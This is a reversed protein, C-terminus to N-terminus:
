VAEVIILTGFRVFEGDDPDDRGGQQTRVEGEVYGVLWRTPDTVTGVSESAHDGLLVLVPLAGGEASEILGEVQGRVDDRAVRTSGSATGLWGATAATNDVHRAELQGEDWNLTLSRRSPGLQTRRDTNAVDLDSGVNPARGWEYGPSWQKGLPVGGFLYAAGIQYYDNAAETSAILLSWWRYRITASPSAHAVAVGAPWVLECDATAGPSGAIEAREVYVTVTPGTAPDSWYGATNDRITAVFPGGASANADYVIHGGRLEGRRIYRAGVVTGAVPRLTDGVLAGTLGTFGQALDVVLISQWTPSADDPAAELTITRVNCGRVALAITGGGAGIETDYGLDLAIRQDAGPAVSRWAVSPSPEVTPLLAEVPHGHAAPLGYVEGPIAPGGRVRALALRERVPDHLDPLYYSSAGVGTQDLGEVLATYVGKARVYWWSHICNAVGVIQGWRCRVNSSASAGSGQTSWTLAVWKTTGDTRHAVYGDAGRFAVRVHYRGSATVKGTLWAAGEEDRVRYGGEDHWVTLRRVAASNRARLELGIGQDNPTTDTTGGDNTVEICYEASAENEDGTYVDLDYCIQDAAGGSYLTLGLAAGILSSTGPGTLTWAPGDLLISTPDLSGSWVGDTRGAGSEAWDNGDRGPGHWGGLHVYGYGYSRYACAFGGAPHPVARVSWNDTRAVASAATWTVGSDVSFKVATQAGGGSGSYWVWISGNTDIGISCASCTPIKVVEVYDVASPDDFASALRRFRISDDGADDENTIVGLWGDPHRAVDVSYATITGTQSWTRGLDYSAAFRAAPASSIGVWLVAGAADFAARHKIQHDVGTAATFTPTGTFADYLAGSADVTTWTAGHDDTCVVLTPAFSWLRGTGPQYAIAAADGLDPTTGASTLTGLGLAGWPDFIGLEDAATTGLLIAVRGSVDDFAADHRTSPAPSTTTWRRYDTITVPPQYGRLEALTEGDLYYGWGLGDGGPTPYGAQTTVLTADVYQAGVVAPDLRGGTPPEALGPRPDGETADSNVDDVFAARWRPDLVGFLRLPRDVQAM